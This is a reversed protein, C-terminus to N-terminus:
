SFLGRVWDMIAETIGFIPALTLGFVMLYWVVAIAGVVGAIAALILNRRRQKPDLAMDSARRAASKVPDLARSAWAFESALVVLGLILTAWGPGPIVFMVVGAALLTTGLAFVGVRWATDLVPQSRIRERFRRMRSQWRPSM